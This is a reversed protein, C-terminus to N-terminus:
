ARALARPLARPREAVLELLKATELPKELFDNPVSARFEQARETFTGGTMFVVHEVLDPHRQRIADYVDMGSLDPMMLDCLILDYHEGADLLALAERGNSVIRVAHGQLCRQIARAVMSEDDIVLVRAPGAHALRGPPTSPPRGPAAVSEPTRAGSTTLTVAPSSAPAVSAAHAPVFSASTAQALRADAQAFWAASGRGSSVSRTSRGITELRVRAITRGPKSEFSLEGGVQALISQCVALGLGMGEPKTTYFAEGVREAQERTMGVGSDEIEILLHAGDDRARVVIRNGEARGAPIAQAANVLLNLFVQTLRAEDGRALPLEAVDLDLRTSERVHGEAMKLAAGLARRVDAEAAAGGAGPRSYAKLDAVIRQIRRVGGLAEHLAIAPESGPMVRLGELAYELNNAVFSLPNNIEHAAAAAIRGLSAMRESQALRAEAQAELKDLETQRREAELTAIHALGRARGHEYLTAVLYLTLTVVVLVAHDNFLGIEGPARARLLGEHGAYGLAASTACAIAAWAAGTRPGALLTAFLPVEALAVTAANIGAGRESAILFTIAALAFTLTGNIVPPYQGTLRLVLPGILMGVALVLNAVTERFSSTLAHTTALVVFVSAMLLAIGVAMRARPGQEGVAVSPPVFWDILRRLFRV